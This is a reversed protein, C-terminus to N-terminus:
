NRTYKNLRSSNELNQSIDAAHAPFSGGFLELLTAKPRHGQQLFSDRLALDSLPQAYRWTSYRLPLFRMLLSSVATQEGALM